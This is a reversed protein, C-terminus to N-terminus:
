KKKEWQIWQSQGHFLYIGIKRDRALSHVTWLFHAPLTPTQLSPWLWTHSQKVSDASNAQQMDDLFGMLVVTSVVIYINTVQPVKAVCQWCPFCCIEFLECVHVWSYIFYLLNIRTCDMKSMCRLGSHGAMSSSVGPWLWGDAFERGFSWFWGFGEISQSVPGIPFLGVAMDCIFSGNGATKQLVGLVKRAVLSWTSVSKTADAASASIVVPSWCLTGLCSPEARVIQLTGLMEFTQIHTHILKFLKPWNSRIMPM